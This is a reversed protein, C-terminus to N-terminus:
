PFAIYGTLTNPFARLLLCRQWCKFIPGWPLRSQVNYPLGAIRVFNKVMANFWGSARIFDFEKTRLLDTLPEYQKTKRNYHYGLQGTKWQFHALVQYSSLWMPIADAEQTLDMLWSHIVQFGDGLPIPDISIIETM